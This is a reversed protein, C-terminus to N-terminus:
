EEGAFRLASVYPGVEGSRNGLQLLMLLARRDDTSLSWRTAQFLTTLLDRDLGTADAVRKRIERRQEVTAASISLAVNTLDERQANTADAPIVFVDSVYAESTLIFWARALDENFGAEPPTMALVGEVVVVQADATDDRVYGEPLIGFFSNMTARALLEASTRTDILRISSQEIEDPRVPTRMVVPGTKDFVVALQPLLRHTEQLAGYEGAPILAADDPGVDAAKLGLRIEVELSPAILGGRVGETVPMTALSEDLLLRM